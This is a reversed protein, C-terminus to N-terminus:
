VPPYVPLMSGVSTDNADELLTGILATQSNLPSPNQKSGGVCVPPMKMPVSWKYEPFLVMNDDANLFKGFKKNRDCVTGLHSMNRSKIYDALEQKNKSLLEEEAANKDFVCTADDKITRILRETDVSGGTTATRSALSDIIDKNPGGEGYFNFVNDTFINKGDATFMEQKNDRAATQQEQEATIKALLEAKIKNMEEETLAPAKPSPTPTSAEKATPPTPTPGVYPQDLLYKEVFQSLKDEDLEFSVLKRKLFKMTDEDVYTKGSVKTYVRTVIMTLQRDTVNSQLNVYVRNSQTRELRKFEESAILVQRLKDETFNQDEKLQKAFSYLEARNPNRDLVENFVEIVDSENGFVTDTVADAKKEYFTKKLVPASTDIVDKLSRMTMKRTQVYRTYFDLEEASPQTSYLELYVSKVANEIATQNTSDIFEFETPPTPPSAPVPAPPSAPQPVTTTATATSSPQPAPAAPSTSSSSPQLPPAPSNNFPEVHKIKKNDIIFYVSIVIIFVLFVARSITLSDFQFM